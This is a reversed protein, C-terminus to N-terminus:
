STQITALQWIYDKDRDVAWLPLGHQPSLLISATVFELGQLATRSQTRSRARANPVKQSETKDQYESIRESDREM